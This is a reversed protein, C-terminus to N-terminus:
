GLAHLVDAWPIREQELRVRVGWTGAVLGDYVEREASTLRTPVAATPPATDEVWLRRHALLTERDMLLSSLHPLVARAQDLIAFGHRDIDGWYHVSAPQLWPIRGLLGVAHGLKMFAVTGRREPLALGSELNEVVIAHAPSFPLAALEALPAEIDSLGGVGRRLEPCLVRLRLRVPARLLGLLAHLDRAADDGHALLAWAFDTVVAARQELWKTDIGVVPIQRLYLGSSRHMAAWELVGALRAFDDDPWDALAEFARRNAPLLGAGVFRESLASRRAVARRWRAGQGVLDAHVAPSTMQLAVPLRQEGLRSWRRVAWQVVAPGAWAQWSEVWARVAGPDAVVEAETPSGLALTLPADDGRVWWQLHRREFRRALATIAEDPRLLEKPM